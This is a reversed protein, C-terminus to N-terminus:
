FAELLWANIVSHNIIYTALLTAIGIIITAIVHTKTWGSTKSLEGSAKDEQVVINNNGSINSNFYGM